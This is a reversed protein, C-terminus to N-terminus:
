CMRVQSCSAILARDVGVAPAWAVDRVWDSHAELKAEEAWKNEAADHRWTKVLNDCGGSALRRVGNSGVHPAWSVANCGITHANPIKDTDWAGTQDSIFSFFLNVSFRAKSTRKALLSFCHAM